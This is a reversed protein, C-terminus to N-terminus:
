NLDTDYKILDRHSNVAEKLIERLISNPDIVHPTATTKKSAYKNLLVQDDLKIFITKLDTAHAVIYSCLGMYLMLPAVFALTWPVYACLQVILCVTFGFYTEKDLWTRFDYTRYRIMLHFNSIQFGIFKGFFIPLFFKSPRYRFFGFTHRHIVLYHM